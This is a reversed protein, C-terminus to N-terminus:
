LMRRAMQRGRWSAWWARWRARLGMRAPLAEEPERFQQYLHCLVRRAERIEQQDKAFPAAMQADTLHRMACLLATRIHAPPEKTM